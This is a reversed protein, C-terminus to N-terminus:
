QNVTIALNINHVAGALKGACQFAVSIRQARLSPDQTAVKPAYVYFGKPLFDGQNLIGFGTSNWQGPALVGNQVFQTAVNEITATMLNTGADTQPIKTTTTYLLNYLATQTAVAWADTDSIQDLFVGAAPAVGPEFIATGNNYAVVVNCQKAELNAIQTANLVEPIIGPMQKWMLTIATKTGTYDVGLLRAFASAPCVASSVSCYQLLTRTFGAQKMQYAISTTDNGKTTNIITTDSTGYGYRHKNTMGEIAAAFGMADSDSANPALLAYWQQGFLNDMTTAVTAASEAVTGQYLYAGNALSATDCGLKNSIDTGSGPPSLVSISSSAGSTTSMFEFRNFSANYVCTSGTLATNIISAVGNLDAAASFNLGSVTTASGGDKTYIFAGNTISNWATVTGYPATLGAGRLGGSSQTRCWRGVLLQKPQPNQSFWLQAANYTFGTTGFDTVVGALSTYVRMREVQDITSTVSLVLMNSLSQAQAGAPTLTVTVNILRSIPLTSTTM